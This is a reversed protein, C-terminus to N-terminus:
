RAEWKWGVPSALERAAFFAWPTNAHDKVIRELYTRSQKSLKELNSNGEFSDTAALVWTDQNPQPFNRGQKLQALMANYGEIRARAALIRGMALDFECQWRPSTLKARDSEGPQLAQFMGTLLPEMRAAGQQAKSLLKSLSAEDKKYFEMTLDSDLKLPELKAANHVAMCAKNSELIQQYAAATVYDPRYRAMVEPDFRQVRHGGMPGFMGSSGSSERIALYRGGSKSALRSLAFPGFGSDLVPTGEFSNKWDQMEVNEAAFSEPGSRVPQGREKDMGSLTGDSGLPAPSGIVWLPITQKEFTPVLKDVLQADDGREDSVVVIMMQRRDPSRFKAYDNYAREIAAFTREESSSGGRIKDFASTVTEWDEVPEPTFFEVEEDFAGVVTMLPPVSASKFLEHDQSKMTGLTRYMHDLRRLADTRVNHASDTIDILWVVLAPGQSMADVIEAAVRDTAGEGSLTRESSGGHLFPNAAIIKPEAREFAPEFEREPKPEPKTEKKAVKVPKPAKTLKDVLGGQYAIAGIVILLVMVVIIQIFAVSNKM